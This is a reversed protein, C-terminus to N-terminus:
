IGRHRSLFPKKTEKKEKALRGLEVRVDEEKIDPHFEAVIHIMRESAQDKFKKQKRRDVVIAVFAIVFIATINIILIPVAWKKPLAFRAIIGLIWVSLQLIATRLGQYAQMRQLGMGYKVLEYAMTKEFNHFDREQETPELQEDM